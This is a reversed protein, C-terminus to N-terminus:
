LAHKVYLQLSVCVHLAETPDMCSPSPRATRRRLLAPLPCAYELLFFAPRSCVIHDHLAVMIETLTQTGGAAHM